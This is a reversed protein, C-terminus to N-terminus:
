ERRELREFWAKYNSHDVSGDNLMEGSNRANEYGLVYWMMTEEVEGAGGGEALIQPLEQHYKASAHRTTLLLPELLEHLPHYPASSTSPFTILLLAPIMSDLPMLSQGLM